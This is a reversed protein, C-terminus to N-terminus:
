QCKFVLSTLSVGRGHLVAAPASCHHPSYPAALLRMLTLKCGPGAEPCPMILRRSGLLTQQLSWVAVALAPCRQKRCRQRVPQLHRADQEISGAVGPLPSHHHCCGVHVPLPRQVRCGAASVKGHQLKEQLMNSWRCEQHTANLPSCLLVM